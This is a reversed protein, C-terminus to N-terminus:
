WYLKISLMITTNYPHDKVLYSLPNALHMFIIASKNFIFAANLFPSIPTYGGVTSGIAFKLKPNVKISQSIFFDPSKLKTRFPYSVGINLDGFIKNDFVQNISFAITEPLSLVSSSTDLHHNYIASISDNSLMGSNYQPNSIINEIQIGEYHVMTDITAHYSKENLFVVGLQKILFSFRTKSSKNYLSIGANFSIGPLNFNRNENKAQYKGRLKLNIYSGDDATFLSANPIYLYQVDKFAHLNFDFIAKTLTNEDEFVKFLGVTLTGFDYYQFLSQSLNAEKGAYNKNGFAILNYLDKNFASTFLQQYSIGFHYGMKEMGFLSDNMRYFSIEENLNYYIYNYAKIPNSKKIEDSLYNSQKVAHIFNKNFGNTATTFFSNVCVSYGTSDPSDLLSNNQASLNLSLLFLVISYFQKM